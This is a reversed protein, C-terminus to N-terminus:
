KLQKVTCNGKFFMSVKHLFYMRDLVISLGSRYYTIEADIRQRFLNSELTIEHHKIPKELIKKPVGMAASVIDTIDDYYAKFDSNKTNM